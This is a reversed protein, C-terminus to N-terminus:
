PKKGARLDAIQQRLAENEDELEDVRSNLRQITGEKRDVTRNLSAIEAENFAIRERLTAEVGEDAAAEREKDSNLRAVVIVTLSSIMTTVIGLGAIIVADSM